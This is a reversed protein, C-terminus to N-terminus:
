ECCNCSRRRLEARDLIVIGGRVYSVAKVRKLEQAIHTLSPRHVGMLEAIQEQTIAFRVAGTRNGVMLLWCCFREELTHFSRCVARQSIQAVYEEVGRMVSKLVSEDATFHNKLVESKIRFARGKVSVKAWSAARRAGIMPVLGAANESGIMAVEATKGDELIHYESIIATEPFYIYDITEGPAYIREGSALTVSELFPLLATRCKETQAALLRNATFGAAPLNYFTKQAQRNQPRNKPSESIAPPVFANKKIIVPRQPGQAIIEHM